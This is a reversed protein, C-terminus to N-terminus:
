VQRARHRHLQPRRHVAALWALTAYAQPQSPCIYRSAESQAMALPRISPRRPPVRPLQWGVPPHDAAVAGRQTVVAPTNGWSSTCPHKKHGNDTNRQTCREYNAHSTNRRDIYQRRLINM